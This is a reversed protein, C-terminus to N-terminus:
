WGNACATRSPVLAANDSLFARQQWFVEPRDADTKFDCLLVAVRSQEIESDVAFQPSAIQDFQLHSINESCSLDFLPGRDSLTLCLFRDAKLNGIARPLREQSLHALGQHDSRFVKPWPPKM